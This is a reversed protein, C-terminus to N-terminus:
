KGMRKIEKITLLLEEESLNETFKKLDLKLHYVYWTHLNDFGQISSKINLLEEKSTNRCLVCLFEESARLYNEEQKDDFYKYMGYDSCPM